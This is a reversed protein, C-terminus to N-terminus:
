NLEKNCTVFVPQGNLFEGTRKIRGQQELGECIVEFIDTETVEPHQLLIKSVIVHEPAGDAPKDLEDMIQKRKAEDIM